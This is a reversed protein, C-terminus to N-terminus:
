ILCRSKIGQKHTLVNGSSQVKGLRNYASRHTQLLEKYKTANALAHNKEQILENIKEKLYRSVFLSSNSIETIKKKNKGIKQFFLNSIQQMNTMEM